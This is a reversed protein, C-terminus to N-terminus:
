ESLITLIESETNDNKNKERYISLSSTTYIKNIGNAPYDDIDGHGLFHTVYLSIDIDAFIHKLYKSAKKFTGGYDSIDDIILLNMRFESEQILSLDENIDLGVINGTKQDRVKDLIIYSYKNGIQQPMADIIHHYREYAGKDPYVITNCKSKLIADFIYNYPEYSIIDPHKSHADLTTIKNVYEKLLLELFVYKAYTTENSVEKDQRGYPLYPMYLTDINIKSQYLLCILQNVWILESENGEWYWEIDVVGDEIFKDINKIKWVQSSKDPFITPVIQEIHVSKSKLYIM